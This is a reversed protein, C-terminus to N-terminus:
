YLPTRDFLPLLVDAIGRTCAKSLHSFLHYSMYINPKWGYRVVVEADHGEFVRVKIKNSFSKNPTIETLEKAYVLKERTITNACLM